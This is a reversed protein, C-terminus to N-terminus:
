QLYAGNLWFESVASAGELELFVREGALSQDIRFHKRYRGIGRWYGAQRGGGRTRELYPASETAAVLFRRLFPEHLGSTRSSRAALGNQRYFPGLEGTGHSQRQFLWGSNFSERRRAAPQANLLGASCHYL